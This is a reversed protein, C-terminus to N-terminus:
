VTSNLYSKIVISRETTNQIEFKVTGDAKDLIVLGPTVFIGDPTGECSEVLAIQSSVPVTYRTYGSAFVTEGPKLLKRDSVKM